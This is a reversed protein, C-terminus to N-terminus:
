MYTKTWKWLRNFEKQRNLQLAIMMAFSMGESRVDNNYVDKFYAMDAGVPFYLRQTKDDGYYLQNFADNIKENVAKPNLGLLSVFLNEYNDTYFAGSKMNQEQYLNAENIASASYFFVIITIAFIHLIRLM